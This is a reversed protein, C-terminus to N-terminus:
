SEGSAAMSVPVTDQKVQQEEGGRRGRGRREEGM